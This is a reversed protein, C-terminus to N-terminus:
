LVGTIFTAAAFTVFAATAFAGMTTMFLVLLFKLGKEKAAEIEDGTYPETGYVPNQKEHAEM